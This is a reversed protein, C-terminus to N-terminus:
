GVVAEFVVRADALAKVLWAPESPLYLERFEARGMGSAQESGGHQNLQNKLITIRLSRAAQLISNAM